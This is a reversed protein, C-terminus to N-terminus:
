FSNEIYVTAYKSDKTQLMSVNADLMVSYMACYQIRGMFVLIYSLSLGLPTAMSEAFPSYHILVDFPGDM